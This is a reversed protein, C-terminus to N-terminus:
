NSCNVRAPGLYSLSVMWRGRAKLRPAETTNSRAAWLVRIQEQLMGYQSSGDHGPEENGSKAAMAFLIACGSKKPVTDDGKYAPKIGDM